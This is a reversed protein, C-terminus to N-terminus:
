TAEPDIITCGFRKALTRVAQPDARAAQRATREVTALFTDLKAIMLRCDRVSLETRRPPPEPRGEVMPVFLAGHYKLSLRRRSHAYM